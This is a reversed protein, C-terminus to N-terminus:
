VYHLGVYELTHLSSSGTLFCGGARSGVCEILLADISLSVLYMLQWATDLVLPLSTACLEKM